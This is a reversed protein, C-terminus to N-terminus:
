RGNIPYAYMQVDTVPLSGFGDIFNCTGQSFPDGEGQYAGFNPSYICSEFSECLGDDDGLSDFSIEVANVLFTNPVTQADKITKDGHLSKPCDKGAIFSDNPNEGDFSNNYIINETNKLRWDFILCDSGTRCTEALSYNPFTFSSKTWTHWFSEFEIWDTISDYAVQSNIESNVIDDASLAGVFSSSLDIGTVTKLSADTCSADLGDSSSTQCKPTSGIDGILLNNKFTNGTTNGLNIAEIQTHAIAFNSYTNNVGNSADIGINSNSILFNNYTKEGPGYNYIARQKINTLTVNNFTAGTNSSGNANIGTGGTSNINLGVYNTDLSSGWLTVVAWGASTNRINSFNLKYYTNYNGAQYIGNYAFNQSKINYFYNGDGQTIIVEQGDDFSKFNRIMNFNSGSIKLTGEVWDTTRAGSYRGEIWGFNMSSFRIFPEDTLVNTLTGGITILAVKDADIVYGDTSQDGLVTYINGSISLNELAVLNYTPISFTNDWWVSMGTTNTRGYNVGSYLINVDNYKFGLGDTKVLDTLGKGEKLGKLLITATGGIVECGWNFVGLDDIATFNTCSNHGTLPISRKEGGHICKTYHGVEAGSCPDDDQVFWNLRPNAALGTFDDRKVYDMWSDNSPYISNLSYSNNSVGNVSYTAVITENDGTISISVKHTGSGPSMFNIDVECYSKTNGPGCDHSGITYFESNSDFIITQDFLDEKVKSHSIKMRVSEVTGAVLNASFGGIKEYIINGASPQHPAEITSETGDGERPSVV